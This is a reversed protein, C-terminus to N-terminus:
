CHSKKRPPKTTIMLLQPQKINDGDADLLPVPLSSPALPTAIVSPKTTAAQFQSLENSIEVARNDKDLLAPPDVVDLFMAEESIVALSVIEKSQLVAATSPLTTEDDKTVEELKSKLVRTLERLSLEEFKSMSETRTSAVLTSTEASAEKDDAAAATKATTSGEATAAGKARERKEREYRDLSQQLRQSLRVWEPDFFKSSSM